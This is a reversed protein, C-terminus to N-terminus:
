RPRARGAARGSIAAAKPAAPRASRRVSPAAQRRRLYRDFWALHREMRDIRRDPRGYNKLEHHEEPYLVYETERGLVKLAVFLQENAGPPCNRDEEAQLILLPTHIDQVRSLPSQRWLEMAGAESLPDGQGYMRHYHVGFYSEGWDSLADGVGNEAVAAAFRDSAAVMWQTLYGGYSLGMLGIRDPDALGRGTLADAVALVDAEDVRGWNGALADMWSRGHTTSGRPNPMAVRYGHATLLLSDMTGGPGWCGNPGGHFHLITPLAGAGAGDPSALWVQIPGGPGPVTLEDLSFGRFRNEWRAGLTTLRQLSGDTLAYLESARGDWAATMFRRGHQATVTGAILRTSEDVLPELGGTARPVRYPLVRGRRGVTILLQDNGDWQPAEVEEAMGLDAWAWGGVGDDLEPTLCRPRKGDATALWVREPDGVQPHDVDIGLFALWKGDPSYSPARASGKLGVLETMPGGTAPVRFIRYRYHINWDPELDAEFAIWHGDSSWAPNAVDFDGSTLQTPHRKRGHTPSLDLVWLHSRRGVLGNSDDRWDTRTIHRAVPEVGDRQRGVVFREDGAPSVLAMSRCDPSWGLWEVGHKLATIPRPRGGRLPVVHAQAPADEGKAGPQLSPARIFAVWAGDPSVQPHTDRVTGRTLRRPRGGEAPVVWLHSQYTNGRVRREGVVVQTGDPTPHFSELVAQARVLAAATVPPHPLRAPM